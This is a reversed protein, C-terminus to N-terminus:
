RPPGALEDIRSLFLKLVPSVNSKSYGVAVEITPPQGELPRSVVSQPLLNNAYAPGVRGCPPPQQRSRRGPTRGLTM